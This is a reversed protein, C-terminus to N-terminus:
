CDGECRQKSWDKNGVMCHEKGNISKNELTVKLKTVVVIIVISVNGIQCYQHDPLDYRGVQNDDEESYFHRRGGYHTITMVARTVTTNHLSKEYMENSRGKEGERRREEGGRENEIEEGTSWKESNKLENGLSLVRSRLVPFM